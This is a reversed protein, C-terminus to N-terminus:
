CGPMTFIAMICSQYRAETRSFNWGPYQKEIERIIKDLPAEIESIEFSLEPSILKIETSFANENEDVIKINKLNCGNKILIEEADGFSFKMAKEISGCYKIPHVPYAKDLEEIYWKGHRDDLCISYKGDNRKILKVTKKM